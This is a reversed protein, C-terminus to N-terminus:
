VFYKVRANGVTSCESGEVWSLGLHTPPQMSPHEVAIYDCPEISGAKYLILAQQYPEILVTDM